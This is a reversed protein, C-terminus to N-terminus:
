WQVIFLGGVTLYNSKKLPMRVRADEPDTVGRKMRQVFEVGRERRRLYRPQLVTQCLCRLDDDVLRIKVGVKWRQGLLCGVGEDDVQIPAGTSEHGQVEAGAPGRICGPPPPAYSAKPTLVLFRHELSAFIKRGTQSPVVHYADM